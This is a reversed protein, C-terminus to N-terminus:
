AAEGDENRRAAEYEAAVRELFPVDGDLAARADEESLVLQGIQCGILTASCVWGGHFGVGRDPRCYSADIEFFATIPYNLDDTADYVLDAKAAAIAPHMNTTITQRRM